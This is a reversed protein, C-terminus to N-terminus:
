FSKSQVFKDNKRFMERNLKNSCDWDHVKM